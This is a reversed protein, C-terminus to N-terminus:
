RRHVVRAVEVVTSMVLDLALVVAFIQVATWLM